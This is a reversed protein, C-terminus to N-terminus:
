REYGLVEKGVVSSPEIQEDVLFMNFYGRFLFCLLPFLSVFVLCFTVFSLIKKSSLTSIHRM